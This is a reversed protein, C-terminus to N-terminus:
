RKLLEGWTLPGVIGDADLRYASQFAKVKEELYSGFLGDPNTVVWGRAKLISQLVEVDAGSMGKCIMRPPWFEAAPIAPTEPEATDGDPDNQWAKLNLQAKIEKAYRFRRDVNKYFPNEYIRCIKDVCTYLDNSTTVIELVSSYSSRLEWLAFDVQMTPDDLAKGSAKWFDWLDFKRGKTKALNVYTWQALGYGKEDGGFTQRSIQGSTVRSTYDKSSTRYPSNDNQLRNPECGSEEEWNGLMGVAGAETFGARRLQNYISQKSM